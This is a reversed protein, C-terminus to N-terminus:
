CRSSLLNRLLRCLSRSADAARFLCSFRLFRRILDVLAVDNSSICLEDGHGGNHSVSGPTRERIQFSFIEPDDFVALCLRDGVEPGSFCWKLNGQKEVRRTLFAVM